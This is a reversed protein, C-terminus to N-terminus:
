LIKKRLKVEHTNHRYVVTKDRTPQLVSNSIRLTRAAPKADGGAVFTMVRLVILSNCTKRKLRKLFFHSFSSNAEEQRDTRREAQFSERM